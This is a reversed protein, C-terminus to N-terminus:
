LKYYSNLNEATVEPKIFNTNLWAGMMPALVHYSLNTTGTLLAFITGEIGEPTIKAFLAMTPLISLSTVFVGFAMESFLVCVLDSLGLILNWRMAFGFMMVAQLITLWMGVRVIDRVEYHKLSKEYYM